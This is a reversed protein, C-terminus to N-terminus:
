EIIEPNNHDMMKILSDRDGTYSYGEYREDGDHLMYRRSRSENEEYDWYTNSDANNDANELSDMNVLQLVSPIFDNHDIPAHSVTMSEKKEGAKKIFYVVQVDQMGNKYGRGHDATIIITANEYKDIEKLRDLYENVMGMVGNAQDGVSINEIYEMDGNVAGETTHMGFLHKITIAKELSEDVSLGYDKLMQWYWGTDIEAGAVTTANTFEWTFTEFPKKCIYPMYKFSSMRLFLGCLESRNIKSGCKEINDVKGVIDDYYGFYHESDQSYVRFQYGAEHVAEYFDESGESTWAAHKYDEAVVAGPQVDFGTLMHIMSPYTGQYDCNANDYYTFDELGNLLDPYEELAMDLCQNGFSDLVLVIINEDRAFTLEKEGSFIYQNKGNNSPITIFLSIIAVIQILSLGGAGYLLIQKIHKRKWILIVSIVAFAVIWIVVDIIVWNKLSAMNLPGGDEEGLKTNLFMNQIYSMIGFSFIVGCLTYFIEQYPVASFVLAVFVCLILGLAILIPVFERYSFLMEDMNGAYIEFPGLIMYPIVCVLVTVFAVSYHEKVTEILAKINIPNYNEQKKAILMILTLLAIGLLCVTGSTSSNIAGIILIALIGDATLRTIYDTLYKERVIWLSLIITLIVVAFILINSRDILYSFGVISSKSIIRVIVSSLAILICLTMYIIRNSLLTKIINISTFFILFLYILLALSFAAVGLTKCIVVAASFGLMELATLATGYSKNRDKEVSNIKRRFVEFIIIFLIAGIFVISSIQSSYQM